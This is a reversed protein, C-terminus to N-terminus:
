IKANEEVLDLLVKGDRIVEGKRMMKKGVLFSDSEDLTERFIDFGVEGSEYKMFVDRAQEMSIFGNRREYEVGRKYMGPLERQLFENWREAVISIGPTYPSVYENSGTLIKMNHHLKDVVDRFAVPTQILEELGEIIQRPTYEVGEYLTMKGNIPEPEPDAEIGYEDTSTQLQIAPIPASVSQSSPLSENTKPQKREQTAAAYVQMMDIPRAIYEAPLLDAVKEGTIIEVGNRSKMSRLHSPLGCHAEKEKEFRYQQEMFEGVKPDVSDLILQLPYEEDQDLHFRGGLVQPVSVKEQEILTVINKYQPM